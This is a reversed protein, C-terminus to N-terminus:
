LMDTTFVVSIWWSCVLRGVILSVCWKLVGLWTSAANVQSVADSCSEVIMRLRKLATAFGSSVLVSVCCRQSM